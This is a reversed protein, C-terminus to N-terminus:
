DSDNKKNKCPYKYDCVNNEDVKFTYIENGEEDYLKVTMGLVNRQGASSDMVVGLTIQDINLVVKFNFVFSTELKYSDKLYSVRFLDIGNEKAYKEIADQFVRLHTNPANVNEMAVFLAEESHGNTEPLFTITTDSASDYEYQIQSEYDYSDEFSSSISIIVLIILVILIM